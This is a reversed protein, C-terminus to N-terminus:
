RNFLRELLPKIVSVDLVATMGPQIIRRKDLLDDDLKGRIPALRMAGDYKGIHELIASEIGSGARYRVQLTMNKLQAADQPDLAEVNFERVRLVLLGPETEMLSIDRATRAILALIHDIQDAGARGILFDKILQAAGSPEAYDMAERASASQPAADANLVDRMDGLDLLFGCSTMGILAQTLPRDQITWQPFGSMKLYAWQSSDSLAAVGQLDLGAKREDAPDGQLRMRAYASEVELLSPEVRGAAGRGADGAPRLTVMLTGDVFVGDDGINEFTVQFGDLLTLRLSKLIVGAEVMSGGPTILMTALVVAAAVSRRNV